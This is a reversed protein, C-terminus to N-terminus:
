KLIAYLFAVLMVCFYNCLFRPADCTVQGANDDSGVCHHCTFFNDPDYRRKITLLRNYHSGWFDKKWDANARTPENLYMGDGFRQLSESFKNGEGIVFDEFQALVSNPDALGVGCSLCSSATRFGPSLPTSDAAFRKVQGGLLTGTCALFINKAKFEDFLQKKFFQTFENNQKGPQLLTTALSTRVSPPDGALKAYEYFSSQNSFTYPIDYTNCFSILGTFADHETGDWPALKNIHLSLSGTTKLDNDLGTDEKKYTVDWNHFIFYGGWEDPLSNFKKVIEFVPETFDAYPVHVKLPITVSLLVMSQPAPHLKFVNYVTVGYTGGGGGRVAWFLDGDQLTEITGDMHEIVTQTETCTAIRGDPLVLQMELLNDVALGYTKSIPSHGGGLTYGGTTVTKGSGGVIVRDYQDLLEYIEIWTRGTQVKLEGSSSRSSDTKVEYDKMESLNINLSNNATSRGSYDHGSSRVTVFLNHERAFLIAKQIDGVSNVMAVISPYMQRVTNYMLTAAEYENDSDMVVRGDLTAEFNDIQTKSPFCSEKRCCYGDAAHSSGLFSVYCLTSLVFVKYLSHM